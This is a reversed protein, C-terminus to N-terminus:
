EKITKVFGFDCLFALQKGWMNLNVRRGNKAGPYGEKIAEPTWVYKIMNNGGKM